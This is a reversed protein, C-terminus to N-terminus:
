PIPDSDPQDPSQDTFTIYPKGNRRCFRANDLDIMHIFPTDEAIPYLVEEEQDIVTFSLMKDACLHAPLRVHMGIGTEMPVCIGLDTVIDDSRVQIKFVNGRPLDCICRVTYFMGKKHITASGIEENHYYIPYQM